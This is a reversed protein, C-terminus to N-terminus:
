GQEAFLQSRCRDGHTLPLHHGAGEVIEVSAARLTLAHDRDGIGDHSGWTLEVTTGAADITHLCHGWDTGAVLHDWPM